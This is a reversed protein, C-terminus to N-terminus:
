KEYLSALVKRSIGQNCYTLAGEHPKEAEKEKLPNWNNCTRTYPVSYNKKLQM